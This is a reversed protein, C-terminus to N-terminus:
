YITSIPHLLQSVPNFCTSLQPSFYFYYWPYILKTFIEVFQYFILKLVSFGNKAFFETLNGAFTCESPEYDAPEPTTTTSQFSFFNLTRELRPPQLTSHTRDLYFFGGIFSNETPREMHQRDTSFVRGLWPFNRAFFTWLKRLYLAAQARAKRTCCM